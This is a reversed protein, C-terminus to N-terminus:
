RDSAKRLRQRPFHGQQKSPSYTPQLMLRMVLMTGLWCRLRSLEGAKSTYFGVALDIAKLVAITLDLSAKHINPDKDFMDGLFLEVDSFIPILNEFGDGDFTQAVQQPM